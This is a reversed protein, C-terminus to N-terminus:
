GDEWTEYPVCGMNTYFDRYFAEIAEITDEDRQHLSVDVVRDGSLHMQAEPAVNVRDQTFTPYKAGIDWVRLNLYFLKDRRGDDRDRYFCKQLFFPKAVENGHDQWVSYGAAEANELISKTSRTLTSGSTHTGDKYANFLAMYRERRRNAEEAYNGFSSTDTM